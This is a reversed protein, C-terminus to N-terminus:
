EIRFRAVENRVHMSFDYPKGDITLKVNSSNGIVFSIPGAAVFERTADTLMESLLVDNKGRAETWSRGSATVVIKREGAALPKGALLAGPQPTAALVPPSVAGAPLTLASVPPSVVNPSVPASTGALLGNSQADVGTIPSTALKLSDSTPGPLLPATSTPQTQTAAAASPKAAGVGDLPLKSAAQPMPIDKWFFLALGVLLIALLMLPILWRSLGSRAPVNEATVESIGAPLTRMESLPAARPTFSTEIVKKDVGVLRAYSYFFGRTFTREPLNSWDEAEIAVIQRASLKLKTAVDEVSLGAAERAARLANGALRPQPASITEGLVTDSM